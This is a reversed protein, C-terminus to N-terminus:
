KAEKVRHFIKKYEGWLLETNGDSYKWLVPNIKNYEGPAITSALLFYEEGNILAAHPIYPHMLRKLSFRKGNEILDFSRDGWYALILKGNEYDADYIMNGGFPPDDIDEKLLDYWNFIVNGNKDILEVKSEGRLLYQDNSESTLSHIEFDFNEWKALTGDAERLYVNPFHCYVIRGSEDVFFGHQATREPSTFWLISERIGADVTFHLLRARYEEGSFYSELIYFGGDDSKSLSFDSASFESVIFTSVGDNKNWKMIAAKHNVDDVPSIYVWYLSGDFFMMSSSPHSYVEAAIFIIILITYINKRMM